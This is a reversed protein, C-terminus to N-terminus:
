PRAEEDKKEIFEEYSAEAALARYQIMEVEKKIFVIPAHLQILKIGRDIDRRISELRRIADDKIMELEDRM